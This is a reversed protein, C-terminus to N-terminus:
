WIPPKDCGSVIEAVFGAWLDLTISNAPLTAGMGPLDPAIARHGSLQLRDVLTDFCWSNHFAGPILIFTAM